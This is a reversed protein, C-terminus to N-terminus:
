MDLVQEFTLMSEEWVAWFDVSSLEADWGSWPKKDSQFHAIIWANRTPTQDAPTGQFVNMGPDLEGHTGNCVLNLAVQDNTGKEAAWYDVITEEFNMERLHELDIVMVGANFSKGYQEHWTSLSPYDKGGYKDYMYNIISSRAAIGCEGTAQNWAGRLPGVVFADLDIWLLKRVCPLISPLRLRAQTAIPVHGRKRGNYSKEFDAVSTPITFIKANPLVKASMLRLLCRQKESLNVTLVYLVFPEDPNSKSLANLWSPYVLDFFNADITTAIHIADPNSSRVNERTCVKEEVGVKWKSPVIGFKLSPDLIGSHCMSLQKIRKVQKKFDSGRPNVPADTWDFDRTMVEGEKMQHMFVDLGDMRNGGGGPLSKGHVFIVPTGLAVCPMAVHLRNTIVLRARSYALLREFALIFRLVNDDADDGLLKQTLYTSGQLVSDPVIGELEKTANVDVILVGGDRKVKPLSLTMTLCASFLAQVGNDRLFQLTKTDRAGIPSQSKLYLAVPPGQEEKESTSEPKESTEQFISTIELRPQIHMSISIPEVWRPPPWLMTKTGWWANFFVLVRRGDDDDPSSSNYTLPPTTSDTYQVMDLRDREIFADLRPLAQIGALGQTEDGVNMGPNGIGLLYKHREDYNLTAYYKAPGDYGDVFSSQPCGASLPSKMASNSVLSEITFDLPWKARDYRERIPKDWRYAELFRDMMEKVMSTDASTSISWLGGANPKLEAAHGDCTGVSITGDFLGDEYKVGPQLLVGGLKWVAALQMAVQLHREYLHGSLLKGLVHHNAWEELPTDKALTPVHLRDIQLGTINAAMRIRNAHDICPTSGCFLKVKTEQPFSKLTDELRRVDPPGDYAWMVIAQLQQGLSLETQHDTAVEISLQEPPEEKLINPLSENITLSTFNRGLRSFYQLCCSVSFVVLLFYSIATASATHHKTRISPDPMRIHSRKKTLFLNFLNSLM